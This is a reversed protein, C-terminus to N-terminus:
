KREYMGTIVAEGLIHGSMANILQKKTSGAPLDLMRNLAYITFTYRHPGHGVPPMPGGYGVRDPWSTQGQRAGNLPEVHPEAPLGEPLDTRDGPINWLCWHVWTGNPADPDKCTVAFSQTGPPVDRWVLPPSLDEGEGTHRRPIRESNKFAPSSLEFSM